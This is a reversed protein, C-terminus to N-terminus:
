GPQLAKGRMNGIVTRGLKIGPVEIARYTIEAVALVEAMVFAACAFYAYAGIAPELKAYLTVIWGKSFYIVLPHLLYISFSREGLYEFFINAFWRNPRASQWVCLAAFGLAMIISYFPGLDVLTRGQGIHLVLVMALVAAWPVLVHLPKGSKKQSQEFRYAYIGAAFFFLNPLFAFGGWDWKSQPAANLYFAHLETRSAYSVLVTALFFILAERKTKITMLLIPFLVYFIMEVGVTWGAQVLGVELEPFFGFIFTMNLFVTSISPLASDSIVAHRVMAAVVFALITYFLPAIRFFRKILYERVWDTRHMTHETSYMLSFASLVFFLFPGDGFDREIFGFGAPVQIGALYRLHFLVVASAAIGRLGLIGQLLKADPIIESHFKKNKTM